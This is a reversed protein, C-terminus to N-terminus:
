EQATSEPYLKSQYENMQDIMYKSFEEAKGNMVMLDNEQRVMKLIVDLAKNRVPDYNKKIDQMAAECKILFFVDKLADCRTAKNDEEKEDEGKTCFVM